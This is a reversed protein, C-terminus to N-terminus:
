GDLREESIARVKMTRFTQLPGVLKRHRAGPFLFRGHFESGKKHGDSASTQDSEREGDNESQEPRRLLEFVRLVFLHPLEQEV